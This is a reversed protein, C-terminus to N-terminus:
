LNIKELRVGITASMLKLRPTTAKKPAIRSRASLLTVNVNNVSEVRAFAAAAYATHSADVFIHLSLSGYSIFRPIKINHM